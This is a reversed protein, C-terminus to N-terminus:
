GLFAALDLQAGYATPTRLSAAITDALHPQYVALLTREIDAAAHAQLDVRLPAAATPLQQVGAAPGAAGPEGGAELLNVFLTCCRALFQLHSPLEVGGAAVFCVDASRVFAPPAEALYPPLAPAAEAAGAGAGATLPSSAQSGSSSTSPSATGRSAPHGQGGEM